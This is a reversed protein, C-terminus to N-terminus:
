MFHLMMNQLSRLTRTLHLCFKSFLLLFLDCPVVELSNMEIIGIVKAYFDLDFLSSYEERYIAAKLIVLSEHVREKLEARCEQLPTDDPPSM